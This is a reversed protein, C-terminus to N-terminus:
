RWRAAGNPFSNCWDTSVKSEICFFLQWFDIVQARAPTSCHPSIAPSSCLVYMIAFLALLKNSYHIYQARARSDWGVAGSWGTSLYYIKPLKKKADLWFDWSIPAIWKRIAGSPPTLLLSRRDAMFLKACWLSIKAFLGVIFKWTSSGNHYSGSLCTGESCHMFM